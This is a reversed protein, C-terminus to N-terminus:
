ERYEKSKEIKKRGPSDGCGLFVNFSFDFPQRLDMKTANWVAGSENMLADTLTYCNCSNQVASGNTKYEQSFLVQCSFCLFVFVLKRVPHLM